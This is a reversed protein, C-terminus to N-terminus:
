DRRRRRWRIVLQELPWWFGGLVVLLLLAGMAVTYPLTLWGGITEARVSGTAFGVVFVMAGVACLAGCALIAKVVMSAIYRLPARVKYTQIHTLQFGCKQGTHQDCCYLRVWLGPM